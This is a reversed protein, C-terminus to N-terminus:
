IRCLKGAAETLTSTDKAFCFRIRHHDRRDANFVSLPIAAVGHEHVLRCCFDLDPEDSIARYDAVQFYTGECPLLEFRSASLLAAFADRKTQYFSGLHTVDVHDLYDHLAAQAPSNVCYVLFQHVKKIEDVLPAPGTLYGIKWGTIHFTKGFSSVILSRDRLAPFHHISQHPQEFTIFEYVEDSLLLARPYRELLAQLATFDSPRWIRGTPNHPNNIILIRTRDSFAGSIRDWDPLGNPDLPIHVPRVGAMLASPEYSDYCPDLMIVDDGPLTLAQIATYLGQTAGATILIEREPDLTRQYVRAIMAVIKERLGRHGPMPLYQHADRAAARQLAEALRPDIPFNPFGQSLNLAGHKAALSSMVAFITTETGPLRSM